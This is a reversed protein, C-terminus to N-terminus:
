RWTPRSRARAGSSTGPASFNASLYAGVQNARGDGRQKLFMAGLSQVDLPIRTDGVGEIFYAFPGSQVLLTSLIANGMTNQATNIANADLGLSSAAPKSWLSYMLDRLFGVTLLNHQTSVWSVDPGGKVLGAPTRLGLLYKAV